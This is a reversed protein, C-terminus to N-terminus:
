YPAFPPLNVPLEGPPPRRVIFHLHKDKPPDSFLEFMEAVPSLPAKRDLELGDICRQLDDDVPLDVKWRIM